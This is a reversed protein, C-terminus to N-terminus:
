FYFYVNSFIVPEYSIPLGGEGINSIQHRFNNWWSGVKTIELSSLNKIIEPDDQYFKLFTAYVASLNSPEHPTTSFGIPCAAIVVGKFNNRDRGWAQKAEEAFCGSECANILLAKTGSIENLKEILIDPTIRCESATIRGGGLVCERTILGKKDGEGSYAIFVKTKNDSVKALEAFYNFLEAPLHEGMEALYVDYGKSFVLRSIQDIDNNIFPDIIPEGRSLDDPKSFFIRNLVSPQPPQFTEGKIIFAYKNKPNVRFTEGLLHIEKLLPLDLPSTSSCGFIFIFFFLPLYKVM